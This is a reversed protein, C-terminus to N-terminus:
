TGPKRQIYNYHELSEQDWGTNIWFGINLYDPRKAPNSITANIHKILTDTPEYDDWWQKSKKGKIPLKDWWPVRIHEEAGKMLKREEYDSM